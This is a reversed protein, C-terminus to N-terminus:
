ISLKKMLTRWWLLVAAVFIQILISYNQCKADYQLGVVDIKKNIGHMQSRFINRKPEIELVLRSTENRRSVSNKSTENRRLGFVKMTLRTEDRGEFNGDRVPRGQFKRALMGLGSKVTVTLNTYSHCVYHLGLTPRDSSIKVNLEEVIPAEVVVSCNSSCILGTSTPFNIIEEGPM